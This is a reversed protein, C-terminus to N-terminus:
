ATSAAPMASGPMGNRITRELDGDTPLSGSPTSQFKFIGKTFDRPKPFLYVTATGEGTGDVGHCTSCYKLYLTKGNEASGSSDQRSSARVRFGMALLSLGLVVVILLSKM